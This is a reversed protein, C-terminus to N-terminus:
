IWDVGAFTALVMVFKMKPPYIVYVAALSLLFTGDDTTVAQLTHKSLIGAIARFHVGCGSQLKDFQCLRM